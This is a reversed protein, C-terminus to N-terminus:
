REQGAAISISASNRISRPWFTERREGAVAAPTGAAATPGPVQRRHLVPARLQM